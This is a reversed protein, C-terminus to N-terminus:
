VLALASQAAAIAHQAADIAPYPELLLIQHLNCASNPVSVQSDLYKKGTDPNVATIRYTSGQTGLQNPWLNLIAVGDAGAVASVIEPVVLGQYIETQNLKATLRAGAVPNGNQDSATCTVPVTLM